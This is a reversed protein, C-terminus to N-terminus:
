IGEEEGGGEGERKKEKDRETRDERKGQEEPKRGVGAEM